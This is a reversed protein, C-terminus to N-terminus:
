RQITIGDFSGMGPLSLSITTSTAPPAPFKFSMIGPGTKRADTAVSKKSYDLPLAMYMGSQDKLVNYKRSTADDIYSVQDIDARVTEYNADANAPLAAQLEVTLIDGIVRAKTLSIQTGKPGPQTGLSPAAPPAPAATEAREVGGSTADAPAAPAAPAETTVPATTTEATKEQSCAALSLAFASAVLFSKQM